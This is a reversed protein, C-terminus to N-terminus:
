ITIDVEEEEVDSFTKPENGDGDDGDENSLKKKRRKASPPQHHVHVVAVDKNRSITEKLMFELLKQSRVQLESFTDQNEVSDVLSACTLFMQKLTKRPDGASTHALDQVCSSKGAEELDTATTAADAPQVRIDFCESPNPTLHLEATSQQDVVQDFDTAVNFNDLHNEPPQMEEHHHSMRPDHFPLHALLKPATIELAKWGIKTELLRTNIVASCGILKSGREKRRMRGEVHKRKRPRGGLACNYLQTELTSYFVINGNHNALGRHDVKKNVRKGTRVRYSTGTERSFQELWCRWKEPTYPYLYGRAYDTPKRATNVKSHCEIQELDNTKNSTRQPVFPIDAHHIVISQLEAFCAPLFNKLCLEKVHDLIQLATNIVINLPQANPSEHNLKRRCVITSNGALECDDCVNAKPERHNKESRCFTATRGFRFCHSCRGLVEFYQGSEALLSLSNPIYTFPKLLTKGIGISSHAGSYLPFTHLRPALVRLSNGGWAGISKDTNQQRAGGDPALCTIKDGKDNTDESCNTGKIAISLQEFEDVGGTKGQEIDVTQQQDVIVDQGCQSAMDRMQVYVISAVPEQNEDVVDVRGEGEEIISESITKLMESKVSEQCPARPSNEDVVQHHVIRVEDKIFLSNNDDDPVFGTSSDNQLFHKTDNQNQRNNSTNLSLRHSGEDDDLFEPPKRLGDETSLVAHSSMLVNEHTIKQLNHQQHHDHNIDRLSMQLQFQSMTDNNSTFDHINQMSESDGASDTGCVVPNEDLVQQQDAISYTARGEDALSSPLVRSENQKSSPQVKIDFENPGEIITTEHHHHQHHDNEEQVAVCTEEQLREIEDGTLM